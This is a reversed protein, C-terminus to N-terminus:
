NAREVEVKPRPPEEGAALESIAAFRQLCYEVEMAQLTPEIDNMIENNSHLLSCIECVSAVDKFAPLGKIQRGDAELRAYLKNFGIEKAVTVFFHSFCRRIIDEPDDAFSNGLLLGAEKNFGGSCCPYTDGNPYITIDYDQPRGCSYKTSEDSGRYIRDHQPKARGIPAVYNENVHNTRLEPLLDRVSTGPAWFVGYVSLLIGHRECAREIRYVHEPAVWKQHELDYSVYLMDMQLAALESLLREVVEDNKAWYGSTVIHFPQRVGAARAQGMIETIEKVYVFPDGGTFAFRTM